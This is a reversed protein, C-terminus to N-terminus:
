FGDVLLGAVTPGFALGVGLATGFYSFARIRARGTFASALLAASSAAAAAAGVGALARLVDLVVVNWSLASLVGAAAFVSVGTAFVRRRGIMDAMSGAALM